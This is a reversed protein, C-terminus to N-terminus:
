SGPKNYNKNEPSNQGHSLASVSVSEHRFRVHVHVNKEELVDLESCQGAFRM